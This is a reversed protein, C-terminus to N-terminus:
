DNGQIDKFEKHGERMILFNINAIVHCTSGIFGACEM